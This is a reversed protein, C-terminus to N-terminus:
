IEDDNAEPITDQLEPKNIETESQLKAEQEERELQDIVDRISWLQGDAKSLCSKMNMLANSNAIMDVFNSLVTADTFNINQTAIVINNLAGAIDGERIMQKIPNLNDGWCNYRSLHPQCIRKYDYSYNLGLSSYSANLEINALDLRAFTECIMQLEQDVFIRKFAKLIKGKLTSRGIYDINSDIYRALPEPEYITIPAIIDLLLANINGNYTSYSKVNMSQIYRNRNVFDLIEEVEKEEYGKKSLIGIHEAQLKGLQDYYDDLRKELSEISEQTNKISRKITEAEKTMRANLADKILTLKQQAKIEELKDFIDKFDEAVSEDKAVHNCVKMVKEDDQLEKIDFLFPILALSKRILDENFNNSLIWVTQDKNIVKVKHRTDETLAIALNQRNIYGRDTKCLAEAYEYIKAGTSTYIYYIKLEEDDDPLNFPPAISTGTTNTPYYYDLDNQKFYYKGSTLHIQRDHEKLYDSFIAMWERSRNYTVGDIYIHSLICDSMMDELIALQDSTIDKYINASM